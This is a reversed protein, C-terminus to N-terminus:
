MFWWPLLSWFSFIDHHCKKRIPNKHSKAHAGACFHSSFHYNKCCCFWWRAGVAPLQDSYLVWCYVWVLCGICNVPDVTSGPALFRLTVLPHTHAHTAVVSVRSSISVKRELYGLVRVLLLLLIVTTPNPTCCTVLRETALFPNPTCCSFRVQSLGVTEGIRNVDVSLRIM